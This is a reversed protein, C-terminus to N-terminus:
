SIKLFQLKELTFNFNCICSEFLQQNLIKRLLLKLLVCHNCRGYGFLLHFDIVVKDGLSHFPSSRVSYTSRKVGIGLLSRLYVLVLKALHNAVFSLM